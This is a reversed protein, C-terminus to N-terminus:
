AWASCRAWAAAATATQAGVAVAGPGLDDAAGVGARDPAHEPAHRWARPPQVRAGGRGAARGADPARARRAHGRGGCRQPGLRRRLRQDRRGQAAGLGRAPRPPRQRHGNRERCPGPAAGAPGPRRRGLGAGRTRRGPAGCARRRRAAAGVRGLLRRARVAAGARFQNRLVADPLRARVSVHGLLDAGARRQRGGAPGAAGARVAGAAAADIAPGHARPPSLADPRARRSSRLGAGPRGM